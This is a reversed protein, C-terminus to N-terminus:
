FFVAAEFGSGRPTTPPAGSYGTQTGGGRSSRWSVPLEFAPMTRRILFLLQRHISSDTLLFELVSDCMRDCYDLDLVDGMDLPAVSLNIIDKLDKNPQNLISLSQNPLVVLTVTKQQEAERILNECNTLSLLERVTVYFARTSQDCPRRRRPYLIKAEYVKNKVAFYVAELDFPNFEFGTFDLHMLQDQLYAIWDPHAIGELQGRLAKIVVAVMDKLACTQLLHISPLRLPDTQDDEQSQTASIGSGAISPIPSVDTRPPSLNTPLGIPTTLSDLTRQLSAALNAEENYM